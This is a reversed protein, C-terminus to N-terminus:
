LDCSDNAPDFMPDCTNSGSPPTALYPHFLAQEATFGLGFSVADCPTSAGVNESLSDALFCIEQKVEQYYPLDTCISSTQGLASVRLEGLSNFFDELAWAGAIRGDRLVYSEGQKSIKATFVGGRLQVKLAGDGGSLTIGAKPLSAVLVGDSVYANVDVFQSSDDLLSQTIPSATAPNTTFSQTTLVWCDTGDWGPPDLPPPWGMLPSHMCPASGVTNYVRVQVKDNPLGNYGSVRVILSWYGQEAFDTYAESSVSSLLISAKAMFWAFQNDVGNQFDCVNQSGEPVFAPRTCGPDGSAGINEVCTCRGDLDYGIPVYGDAVMNNLPNAAPLLGVEGFDVSRTAFYIDGVTMGDDPVDSGPPKLPLCGPPPAGGTGGGTGASGGGGMGAAGGM